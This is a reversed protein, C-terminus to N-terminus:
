AVARLPLTGSLLEPRHDLAWLVIEALHAGCVDRFPEDSYRRGFIVLCEENARRAEALGDALSQQCQGLACRSIESASM